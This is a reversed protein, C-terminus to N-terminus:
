HRGAVRAVDNDMDEEMYDYFKISKANSVLRLLLEDATSAPRTTNNSRPERKRDALGGHSGTAEILPKQRNM